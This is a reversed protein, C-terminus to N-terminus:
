SPKDRDPRLKPKSSAAPGNHPVMEYVGPKVYRCYITRYDYNTFWKTETVGVCGHLWLWGPVQPMSEDLCEFTMRFDYPGGPWRILIEDGATPVNKKPPTM